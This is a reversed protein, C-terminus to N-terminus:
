TIEPCSIRIFACRGDLWRNRIQVQGGNADNGASTNGEVTKVYGVFKGKRWRVARVKVIIGIHDPWNDSDFRYCILDGRRPHTVTMGIKRAWDLFFGVSAKRPEPIKCGVDSYMGCVFASCWPYGVLGNARMCWNDIGGIKGDRYIDPGRNSGPPHEKVGVFKLARRLALEKKTM